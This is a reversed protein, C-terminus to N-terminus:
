ILSIFGPTRPIGPKIEKSRREQRLKQKIKRM